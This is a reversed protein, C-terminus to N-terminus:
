PPASTSGKLLSCYSAAELCVAVFESGDEKAWVGGWFGVGACVCSDRQFTNELFQLQPSHRLCSSVGGRLPELACGKYRYNHHGVGGPVIVGGGVM